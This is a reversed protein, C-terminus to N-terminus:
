DQAGGGAVKRERVKTRNDGGESDGSSSSSSVKRERPATMEVGQEEKGGAKGGAGGGNKAEQDGKRGVGDEKEVYVYGYEDARSSDTRYWFYQFIFIFFVVDDRLTMWRHKTSMYDSMVFFAFFDDIFTTFFQLSPNINNRQKYVNRYCIEM